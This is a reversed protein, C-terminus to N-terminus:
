DCGYKNRSIDKRQKKEHKTRRQRRENEIDDRSM